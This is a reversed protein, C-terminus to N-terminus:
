LAEEEDIHVPLDMKRLDKHRLGNKEIVHMGSALNAEVVKWGNKGNYEVATGIPHCPIIQKRLTEYTEYTENNSPQGAKGGEYAEYTECAQAATSKPTKALNELPKGPNRLGRQNAEWEERYESPLFVKSYTGPTPISDCQFILGNAEMVRVHTRAAQVSREILRQVDETTFGKRQDEWRQQAWEYIKEKPGKLGDIKQLLDRLEMAQKADGHCIWQGGDFDQEIILSSPKVRKSSTMFLRKSNRATAELEIVVDPIRGLRNTGAGSSATSGSRSKATHHLVIVTAGTGAMAEQLNQLPQAFQSDIENMDKFRAVLTSYSDFVFLPRQGNAVSDLAMQRYQLVDDPGLSLPVESGAFTIRSDLVAENEGVGKAIASLFGYNQLPVSWSERPMDPAILFLHWNTSSDVEVNLFSAPQQDSILARFLGLMLTSKGAGQEANILHLLNEKFFGPMVDKVERWTFKQGGYVMNAEVSPAESKRKAADLYANLQDDRVDLDIKLHASQNRMAPLWDNESYELVVRDAYKALERLAKQFPPTTETLSDTNTQTMLGVNTHHKRSSETLPSDGPISM